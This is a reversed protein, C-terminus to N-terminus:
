RVGNNLVTIGWGEPLLIVKHDYLAKWVNTGVDVLLEEETSPCTICFVEPRGTITFVVQRCRTCIDELKQLPMINKM